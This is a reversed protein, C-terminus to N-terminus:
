RKSSDSQLQVTRMQRLIHAQRQKIYPSPAKSSFKLPNPLTAAILASQSESLKAASTSFHERAVAEAGYVGKGTEMCNLYVELIRDKPWLLELLVTFYAELGKRFWSSRPWLFLNKATQQTITSAGRAKKRTKNEDIAKRIEIRDFGKHSYFRQDESAIVARKLNDSISHFSVWRHKIRPKEGEAVSQVARIVMLPTVYVPVFRFIGVGGASLIFFWLLLKGFFRFLKKM